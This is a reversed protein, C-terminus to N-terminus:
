ERLFPYDTYGAAGGGYFTSRNPTNLKADTHLREPLDPNALYLSGFSVMDALGLGIISDAKQRNYGGNTIFMNPWLERLYSFLPHRKDLSDGAEMGGGLEVLHLYLLDRKALEEILYSFTRMPDHDIIDNYTQLPSVRYGVREAGWVGIVADTVELPFRCRNEVSGGYRDNRVNTSDRTFQDLLYGNAGHIEVGDFGARDANIAAQRFQATVHSIEDIELARPRVFPKMGTPTMADGAPRIPSPAVPVAGLPQLEPHSIRGVHWLQLFITGGTEHVRDTVERWGDIQLGSHIGPTGPYGQGEESVQTGETVILAADSRQQYYLANLADPVNGKKARNRTMPAMVVRHSFKFPKVSFESFLDLM